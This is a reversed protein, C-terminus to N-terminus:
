KRGKNRKTSKATRSPENPKGGKMTLPTWIVVAALTCLAFLLWENM